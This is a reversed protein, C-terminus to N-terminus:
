LLANIKDLNILLQQRIQENQRAVNDCMAITEDLDKILDKKIKEFESTKKQFLKNFVSM